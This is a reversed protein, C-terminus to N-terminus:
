RLDNQTTRLQIDALACLDIFEIVEERLERAEEGGGGSCVVLFPLVLVLCFPNGRSSRRLKLARLEFRKGDGYIM